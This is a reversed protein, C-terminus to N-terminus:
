LLFNVNVARCISEGHFRVSNETYQKQREEVCCWSKGFAYPADAAVVMTKMVSLVIIKQNTAVVQVVSNWFCMLVWQKQSEQHCRLWDHKAGGARENTDKLGLRGKSANMKM